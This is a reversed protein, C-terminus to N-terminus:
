PCNLFSTEPKWGCPDPGRKEGNLFPPMAMVLPVDFGWSSIATACMFGGMRPVELRAVSAGSRGRITLMDSPPPELIGRRYVLERALGPMTEPLAAVAADSLPESTPVRDAPMIEAARARDPAPAAAPPDPPVDIMRYEAVEVGLLRALEARADMVDPRILANSPRRQGASRYVALRWYIYKNAFPPKLNAVEREATRWSPFLDPLNQALWEASLPVVGGPTRAVAREWVTGGALIDALPILRDVVLGPVPLNSVVLVRAPNAADRHILRLRDASQGMANERSMEVVQQVRRDPHARVSVPKAAGTRLDHRRLERGYDGPLNLAVDPADAWIARAMREAVLPKLEERGLVMVTDFDSWGNAGLHRGYHTMDAGQWVTSPQVKGEEGTLARRVKLSTIVLVKKGNATERQVMAAIRARLKADDGDKHPVVISCAALTRDVVQTVYAQRVAPVTFGRLDAGFLRRNIELSADADLLMLATDAPAGRAPALGHRRILPHPTDTGDELKAKHEADWEIGVSALRDAELDRALQSLVAAVARGEHKEHQRYRAKAEEPDMGAWVSPRGNKAALSAAVAAARLHEPKVGDARLRAVAEAGSSVAKVVAHGTDMAEQILHEEGPESAYTAHNTLLAPDVMATEVLDGIASEDVIVLDPAPLRLEAPQMRKLRAHPMLRLAPATDLFQKNYLCEKFKPCFSEPAIGVAPTHCCARYVSDAGAKIAAEVVKLRAPDCMGDTQRGRIVMFRPRSGDKAPPKGEAKIALADAFDDALGLTRAYVAINRKWMAPRNLYEDIIAQTKGLGAAGKIQIRPMAGSAAREGFRVAAARRAARKALRPGAREARVAAAEEAEYPDMGKRILKALIRAESAQRVDGKLHEAEAAIWDRAKLHLEVRNFHASVVKVLRRSAAEGSLHPRPYHPGAPAALRSEGAREIWWPLWSRADRKRAAIYDGGRTYGREDLAADIAHLLATQDLQWGDVRIAAAFAAKIPAHFGLGDPYAPPDGMRDLAADVDEAVFGATGGGGAGHGAWANSLAAADPVQVEDVGGARVGLRVPLLDPVGPPLLPAATYIPQVAAFVAHDVKVGALWTKLERNTTPRSLWFWLRARGGPKIGHGSTLQWFFSADRFGPPLLDVAADIVHDVDRIPDVFPPLDFSDLDLAVWRRACEEFAAPEGARDHLRRRIGDPSLAAEVFKPRLAGRIVCLKPDPAAERLVRALDDLSALPQEKARVRSANGYAGYVQWGTATQRLKKTLIAGVPRVVQLVVIGDVTDRATM